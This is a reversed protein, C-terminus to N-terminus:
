SKLKKIFIFVFNKAKGKFDVHVSAKEIHKKGEDRRRKRRDHRKKLDNDSMKDNKNNLDECNTKNKQACLEECLKNLEYNHTNLDISYTNLGPYEPVQQVALDSELKMTSEEAIKSKFIDNSQNNQYSKIPIIIQINIINDYEDIFLSYVIIPM